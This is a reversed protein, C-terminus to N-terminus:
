QIIFSANYVVHFNMFGLGLGIGNCQGDPTVHGHQLVERAPVNVLRPVRREAYLVRGLTDDALFVRQRHHVVAFARTDIDFPHLLDVLLQM